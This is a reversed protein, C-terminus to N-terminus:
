KLSHMVLQAKLLFYDLVQLGLFVLFYKYMVYTPILDNAELVRIQVSYDGEIM